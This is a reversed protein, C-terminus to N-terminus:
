KLEKQPQIRSHEQEKHAKSPLPLERQAQIRAQEQEAKILAM